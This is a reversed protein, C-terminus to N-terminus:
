AGILVTSATGTVMSPAQFCQSVSCGTYAAGKGGILVTASGKVVMGEQTTPTLYPDSPHLGVHPPTNIGSSTEVAAPKGAILVTAECGKIIPAAFPMPPAPQPAGSTPNPVLHGSSCTGTIQDGQVVAPQGM